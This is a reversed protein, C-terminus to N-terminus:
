KKIRITRPKQRWEHITPKPGPEEVEADFEYGMASRSAAEKLKATLQNSAKYFEEIALFMEYEISDDPGVENVVGEPLKDLVPRPDLALLEERVQLIQKERVFGPDDDVAHKKSMFKAAADEVRDAKDDAWDTFRDAKDAIWDGIGERQIEEKILRKLQQKTLRM